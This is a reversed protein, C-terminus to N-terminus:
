NNAGEFGDHGLSGDFKLQPKALVKALGNHGLSAM